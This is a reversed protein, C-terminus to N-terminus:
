KELKADLTKAFEPYRMNGFNQGDIVFSPTSNIGDAEANAQFTAVLAQAKTGDNLCQELQVNNLGASLGIKRLKEAIQAPDGGELWDEQNQYILDAIAFYRDPGGCRAVMGAWLGFRDFYVERYVFNIKGTDIYNAKLEKFASEHFVRCHPCTFSAYEYVTVDADPNGISMEQVISLDVEGTDQDTSEALPTGGSEPQNAYWFAAGGLIVALALAVILLRNM